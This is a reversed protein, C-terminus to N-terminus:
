RAFFVLEYSYSGDYISSLGVLRVDYFYAGLAEMHSYVNHLDQTRAELSIEGHNFRISYLWVGDPVSHVQTLADKSLFDYVAFGHLPPLRGVTEQPPNPTLAAVLAVSDKLDSLENDIGAQWLALLVYFLVLAAFVTTQIAAVMITFRRATKAKQVHPPLLNIKTM